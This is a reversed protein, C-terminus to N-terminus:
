QDSLQILFDGFPVLLLFVTSLDLKTLQILLPFSLLRVLSWKESLAIMKRIIGQPM